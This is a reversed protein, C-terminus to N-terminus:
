GRRDLVGYGQTSLRSPWLRDLGCAALQIAACMLATLPGLIPRPYLNGKTGVTAGASGYLFGSFRYGLDLWAGGRETIKEVTWGNAKMLYLLWHKTFRCYDHPEEHLQESFPVTLLLRAGPKAVRAMEKLTHAPDLTHELVETCLISDFTHDAFPLALVAAFADTKLFGHMTSPLDIGIHPRTNPVLQAYPKKGCGVDLLRGRLKPGKSAVFRTIERLALHRPHLWTDLLHKKISNWM